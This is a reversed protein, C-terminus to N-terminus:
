IEFGKGFSYSIGADQIISIRDASWFGDGKLLRLEGDVFSLICRSNNIYAVFDSDICRIIHILIRLFKLYFTVKDDMPTHAFFIEIRPEFGLTETMGRLVSEPMDLGTLLRGYFFTQDIQFWKHRKDENIIPTSNTVTESFVKLLDEVTEQSNLIVGEQFSM